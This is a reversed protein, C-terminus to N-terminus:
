PEQTIEDKYSECSERGSTKFKKSTTQHCGPQKQYHRLWEGHEETHEEGNCPNQLKEVDEGFQNKIKLHYGGLPPTTTHGQPQKL